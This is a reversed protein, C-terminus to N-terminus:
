SSRYTRLRPEPEKSPTTFWLRACAFALMGGIMGPGGDPFFTTSLFKADVLWGFIGSALLGAFWIAVIRVQTGGQQVSGAQERFAARRREFLSAPEAGAGYACCSRRSASRNRTQTSLGSASTAITVASTPPMTASARRRCLIASRRATNIHIKPLQQPDSRNGDFLESSNARAPKPRM